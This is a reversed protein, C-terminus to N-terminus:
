PMASAIKQGQYSLGLKEAALSNLQSTAQRFNSASSRRAPCGLPPQVAVHKRPPRRFGHIKRGAPMHLCTRRDIASACVSRDTHPRVWWFQFVCKRDISTNRGHTRFIAATVSPWANIIYITWALPNLHELSDVPHSVARGSFDALKLHHVIRPSHTSPFRLLRNAETRTVAQRSGRRGKTLPVPSPPNIFAIVLGHSMRPSRFQTRYWPAFGTNRRRQTAVGQIEIWASYHCLLERVSWHRNTQPRIRAGPSLSASSAHDAAGSAHFGTNISSAGHAPLRPILPPVATAPTAM